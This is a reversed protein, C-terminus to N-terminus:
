HVVGKDYPELIDLMDKLVSELAGADSAAVIEKIEDKYDTRVEPEVFRLDVNRDTNVFYGCKLHPKKDRGNGKKGSSPMADVVTYSPRLVFAPQVGSPEMNKQGVVVYAEVDEAVFAGTETDVIDQGRYQGTFYDVFGFGCLGLDKLFQEKCSTDIKGSPFVMLLYKDDDLVRYAEKLFQFRGQQDLFYFSLSSVVLDLSKDELKVMTPYSKGPEYVEVNEEYPVLQTLDSMDGVFCRNGKIDLEECVDLGYALQNRNIDVALTPRGLRRSVALPGCGADLIRELSVNKRKEIGSIIQHAMWGINGPYTKEWEHNYLKAFFLATHSKLLVESFNRSGKGILGDFFRGLVTRSNYDFSSAVYDKEIEKHNWELLEDESADEGHYVEHIPQEKRERDGQLGEELFKLQRAVPKLIYTQRHQGCRISRANFQEYKYPVTSDEFQIVYVAERLDIGERLLRTAVLAPIDPNTAFEMLAIERESLGHIEHNQIGLLERSRKNLDSRYKEFGRFFSPDNESYRKLTQLERFTLRIEQVEGSVSQDVRRVGLDALERELRKTVKSRYECAILCKEGSAHIEEVLKKVHLIRSPQVQLIKEELGPNREFFENVRRRLSDDREELGEFQAPLLKMPNAMFYRFLKSKEGADFFDSDLLVTFVDMEEPSLDYPKEIIIPDKVLPDVRKLTRVPHAGYIDTCARVKKPNGDRVFYTFEDPHDVFDVLYMAFAPGKEIRNGMGTGSLLALWRAPKAINAIASARKSHLEVLNHFEDIIAYYLVHNFVKERLADIVQGSQQISRMVNEERIILTTLLDLPLNKRVIGEIRQRGIISELHEYQQSRSLAMLELYRESYNEEEIPLRASRFTMDYGVIVIDTEPDEAKRLAQERNERTVVVVNRDVLFKEIEKKWSPIVYGPCTVFVKVREQEPRERPLFIKEIPVIASLAAITKQTGPKSLELVKGKHAITAGVLKQELSPILVHGTKLYDEPIRTQLFNEFGYRDVVDIEQVLRYWYPVQALYARDPIFGLRDIVLRLRRELDRELLERSDQM